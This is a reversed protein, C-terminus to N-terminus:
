YELYPQFDNNQALEEHLKEGPRLGVLRIAIDGTDGTGRYPSFGSLLIMKQALDVIKIAKGM